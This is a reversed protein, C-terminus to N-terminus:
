CSGETTQLSDPLGPRYYYPVSEGTFMTIRGDKDTKRINEAATNAAVGNGIIIYQTM